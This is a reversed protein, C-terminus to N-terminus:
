QTLQQMEKNIARDYGYIDNYYVLEGSKSPYCTFYSLFVPVEPEVNVTSILKDNDIYEVEEGDNDNPNLDATMSYKIREMMDEDKDKLLFVALEYPKEVRVCGHSVARRDRNFIWPSNTDHLYVSFNNDFRFIIRGLSNGPGGEQVIYQKGEMVRQYSCREPPLKGEKKDFVYMNNRRLYGTRGAINKAISQPVFWKPNIDMRKIKSHLLPTRTKLTGCGIKMSLVSDEDYAYLRFAPINVVVYKKHNEPSDKVQWRCREINCILKQRKASPQSEKKLEEVLRSYLKGKPQISQLFPAVSDHKVKNIINSYYDDGPHSMNVDFVHFYTVHTSDSDKVACHNMTYTPNVYGYRQCVGYLMYARTLNFELRAMVRNIDDDEKLNLGRLRELDEKMQSVKYFDTKIGTEGVGELFWILSDARDDIGHRDIWLFPNKERYYARTRKEAVFRGTDAKVLQQLHQRITRSNIAFSPTKMESFAAISIDKNSYKKEEQCSVLFCAFLLVLGFFRSM